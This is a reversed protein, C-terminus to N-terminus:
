IPFELNNAHLLHHHARRSHAHSQSVRLSSGVDHECWGSAHKTWKVTGTEPKSIKLEYYTFALNHANLIGVDPDYLGLLGWDTDGRNPTMKDRYRRIELERARAKSAGVLKPDSWSLFLKFHAFFISRLCDIEGVNEIKYGIKVVPM